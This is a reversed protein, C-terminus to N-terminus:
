GSSAALRRCWLKRWEEAKALISKLTDLERNVTAPKSPEPLSQGHARWKGPLRERKWQEIRHATIEHLILGGFARNLSKLIERDRDATPKHLDAHDRLYIEAFQRFTIDPQRRIGHKGELIRTREKAEIDRVEPAQRRHGHHKSPPPWQSSLRLALPARVAALNHLVLPDPDGGTPTPAEDPNCRKRLGM